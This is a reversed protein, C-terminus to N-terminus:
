PIKWSLLIHALKFLVSQKDSQHSPLINRLLSLSPDLSQKRRCHISKGNGVGHPQRNCGPLRSAEAGRKRIGPWSYRHCLGRSARTFMHWYTQWVNQQHQNLLHHEQCHKPCASISALAPMIDSGLLSRLTELWDTRKCLAEQTPYQLGLVPDLGM